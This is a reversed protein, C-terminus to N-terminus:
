GRRRRLHLIEVPPQSPLRAAEFGAAELLHLFDDVGDTGGRVFRREVALVVHSEPGALVDIAEALLRFSEGYLPVYVCDCCLVLDVTRGLEAVIGRAAERSWDLERCAPINSDFNAAVNRELLGVLSEQETLVVRCGRLAAVMGPVGLGCGLELCTVQPGLPVVGGLLAVDVLRIAARWLVTGAWAAGSFIPEIKDETLRLSLELREEASVWVRLWEQCIVQGLADVTEGGEIKLRSGSSEDEEVAVEIGLLSM